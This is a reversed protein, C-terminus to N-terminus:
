RTSEEPPVDKFVDMYQQRYNRQEDLEGPVVVTANGDMDISTVGRLGVGYSKFGQQAWRDSSDLRDHHHGHVTVSAGVSRALDDILNFGHSHYGTAEHSILIDARLDALKDFEDPYISSWHRM